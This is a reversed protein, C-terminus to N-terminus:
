LKIMKKSKSSKIIALGIQLTILGDNQIPNITPKRKKVCTLFHVMEEKYMLNKNYNSWKLIEIWKNKSNDYLKVINTDSDWYITGKTGIIKCSRFFPKQFYDLHLEAVVNNKFKIISTSLDDASIKLNSFKGTISFVESVDGFMWYLYDIEHICTLVVGGGLDDRAPYSKSYNEYPHWDPLFSGNEVKVSFIKGMRNSSILEKIKTICKHFRMQCGMQTILKKKIIIDFLDKTNNLSASLPKEIFLDVGANALKIATQVHLNTINAVIGADPKEKLCDSISNVIRVKKPSPNTIMQKTCIIIETNPISLLNQVHRKGISGYGIVAIKL